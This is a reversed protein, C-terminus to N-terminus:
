EWWSSRYKEEGKDAVREERTSLDTHSTNKVISEDLSNGVEELCFELGTRM